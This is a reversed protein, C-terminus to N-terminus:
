TRHREDRHGSTRPNLQKSVKEETDKLCREKAQRLGIEPSEAKENCWIVEKSCEDSCPLTVCMLSARLRKDGWPNMLLIRTLCETGLIRRSCRSRRSLWRRVLSRLCLWKMSRVYVMGRGSRIVLWSVDRATRRDTVYRRSGTQYEAWFSVRFLVTVIICPIRDLIGDRRVCISLYRWCSSNM